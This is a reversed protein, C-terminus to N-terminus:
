GEDEDFIMFISIVQDDSSSYPDLRCDICDKIRRLKEELEDIKKAQEVHLENCKYCTLEIM